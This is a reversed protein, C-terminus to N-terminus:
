RNAGLRTSLRLLDAFVGGATVAPGAGPGQIVLPRTHYRTTQFSCSNDAGSLGAFPHSKPYSGLSVTAKGQADVKGVYRLVEGKAQAQKLQALMAADGEPLRNLYDSVSLARLSDPILSQVHIDSLELKGGAERALIVLKRAVDMGSLDDRPDPETFGKERADKVIESFPRTGDFSNFIYSLTGSFIGEIQIIKDGTQCLERLTQLIPLGAGVNTSYLFQRDAKKAAERLAQYFSYHLTNAKKNPTIIHLGRKLWEPYLTPLDGNATADIVISHPLHSETLHALFEELNAAKQPLTELHAWESPPIGKEDAGDLVMTKSNTVGRLRLTIGFDNQLTELQERLQKLFEKGILGTGILGVGITQPSLLFASHVARLARKAKKGDIVASINRESSGQAIADISIGARGLASFFQGAVGPKEVMNDGVAAIISRGLTVQIRELAGQHIEAYFAKEIAQKAKEALAEPVSFCISHESSAQSIMVVSISSARLAGFLREAVGSVGVLGTGEINILAMHEITSFGKVTATSQAAAHIKTGPFEPNFTNRIWVPIRKKIAPEMTAPHVVKAGFNALETVENYTMENLVVADPVLRPDASLVGDVDTWIIIESANLLNGFISGSFDSGNRKLTTAIGEPTSAVFGTIVLVENGQTHSSLWQSLKEHSEEWFVRVASTPTEGSDVVLVKRADLYVSPTGIKKFYASLIQASWIEGHGSVLEVLKESASGALYIGRLIEKLALFDQELVPRLSPIELSQLADEHRKKIGELLTLYSENKNKALSVLEILSDTTGKMASVVVAARHNPNKKISNLIINAAGQYREANGVSTGGFKHTIWQKQQHLNMEM